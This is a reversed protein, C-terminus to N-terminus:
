ALAPGSGLTPRLSGGPSHGTISLAASSPVSAPSPVDDAAYPLQTSRGLVHGVEDGAWAPLEDVDCAIM